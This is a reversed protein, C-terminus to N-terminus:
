HGYAHYSIVCRPFRFINVQVIIKDKLILKRKLLRSGQFALPNPKVEIRNYETKMTLLNYLRAAENDYVLYNILM